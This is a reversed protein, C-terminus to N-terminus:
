AVAREAPALQAVLDLLIGLESTVTTSKLREDARLTARIAADVRAPPWAPALRSWERAAADYSVRAPRARFLSRKVAAELRVGSAGRDFHDRALGLGILSTGLLAVLAVGTVGSQALVHPLVQVARATRGSLVLDRWDYQTEGHRIGLLDGVLEVSLARGEALGALKALEIKLLGLDADTARVLHDAADSPLEVQQRSAELELWRRARDAPLRDAVVSTTSAALDRDATGDGGQVLLLVTEPAPREL